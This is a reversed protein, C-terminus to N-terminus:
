IFQRQLTTAIVVACIGEFFYSSMSQAPKFGARLTEFIQSPSSRQSHDRSSIPDFAKRRGVMGCFCDDDFLRYGIM